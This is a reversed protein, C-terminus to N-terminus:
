VAPGSPVGTPPGSPPQGPVDGTPIGSLQTQVNKTIEEKILKIFERVRDIQYEKAELKILDALLKKATDLQVSLNLEKMPSEFVDENEPAEVIKNLLEETAEITAADSTKFSEIDPFDTLKSVQNIPVAGMNILKELEEYRATPYDSFLNTPYVDVYPKEKDSIKSFMPYNYAVGMEYTMRALEMFLENYDRSASSFRQTEIDQHMQLAKGSKLGPPKISQVSMEALGSEKFGMEINDRLHQFYVEPVGQFMSEFPPQEGSYRYIAGIQNTLKANHEELKGSIFIKSGAVLDISNIIKRTIYNVRQQIPTLQEALGQGMFGETRDEWRYFAFPIFDFKWDEKFLILDQSDPVFVCHKEKAKWCEVVKIGDESSYGDDVFISKDSVRLNKNADLIKDKFKPYLKILISKPIYYEQFIEDREILGMDPTAVFCKLPHVPEYKFKHEKRNDVIKVPGILSICALKFAKKGSAYAGGQKFHYNVIRDNLKTKKKTEYNANDTLFMPKPQKSGIRSKLTNTIARILNYASHYGRISSYSSEIMYTPIDKMEYFNEFVRIQQEYKGIHYEKLSEYRDLLNKHSVEEFWFKM